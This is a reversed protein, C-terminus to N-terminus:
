ARGPKEKGGKREDGNRDKWVCGCGGGTTGRTSESRRHEMGRV